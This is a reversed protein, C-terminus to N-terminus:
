VNGKCCTTKKDKELTSIRVKTFWRKTDLTFDSRMVWGYYGPDTLLVTKLLQGKYKGFNVQVEGVDNYILLGAFDVNNNYRSFESLAAVDNHLDDPYHELQAMLIEYTARTDAEASHANELEKNCYFKYAASLNRRELKHYINQVDILKVDSLDVEIGARLLEEVLMPVDFRNSNFGIIDCGEIFEYLSKAVQEFTPCDEVDENTIGHIATSEAPIAIGPNIRRTKTEELGDPHIKIVSIEIIRDNTFNVGTTELDFVIAPRELNLKM